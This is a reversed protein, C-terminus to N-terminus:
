WAGRMSVVAVVTKALIQMDFGLSRKVVYFRDLTMRRNPPLASRGSVQWLGTLGPRVSLTLRWPERSGAVESPLAPRPGILTMQGAVVNVLQPLEDISTRRLLRGVATVRRDSALKALLFAPPPEECDMTRLKFMTFERGLRGVRKQLLLPAQRSTM